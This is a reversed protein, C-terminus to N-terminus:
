DFLTRLNDEPWARSLLATRPPPSVMLVRGSLMVRTATPGAGCVTIAQQMQSTDHGTQKLQLYLSGEKPFCVINEKGSM